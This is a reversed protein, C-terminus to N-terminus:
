SGSSAGRASACQTEYPGHTDVHANRTGYPRVEVLLEGCLADKQPGPEAVEKLLSCQSPWVDAIPVVWNLPRSLVDVPVPKCATNGSVRRLRDTIVAAAHEVVGVASALSASVDATVVEDGVDGLERDAPKAAGVQKDVVPAVGSPSVQDLRVSETKPPSRDLALPAVIRTPRLLRPYASINYTLLVVLFLVFVCFFVKM